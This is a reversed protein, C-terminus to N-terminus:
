FTYTKLNDNGENFLIETNEGPADVTMEVLSPNTPYSGNEYELKRWKEGSNTLITRWGNKVTKEVYLPTRTVTFETVPELQDNLLLLTCGGSGCFYTSTFNVFIENKGDNNLDIQALQFKRQDGSIARLDAETLYEQIIYSKVKNALEENQSQEESDTTNGEESPNTESQTKKSTDNKCSNFSLGALIVLIVGIRLKIKNM